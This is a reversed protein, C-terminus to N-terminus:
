HFQRSSDGNLPNWTKLDPSSYVANFHFFPLAQHDATQEVASNEFVQGLERKQTVYRDETRKKSTCPKSIFLRFEDKNDRRSNDRRHLRALFWLQRQQFFIVVRINALNWKRSRRLLLRGIPRRSRPCGDRLSPTHSEYELSQSRYRQLCSALM